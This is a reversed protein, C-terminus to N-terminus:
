TSCKKVFIKTLIIGFATSVGTSILTPLVIDFPALSGAQARIAIVTTPLLQLSTAALVFLMTKAYENKHNDMSAAARMGAPTAVSGLGLLNATINVCVNKESESDLNGFLARVPRKLIAALKQTIKAKELIEFLGLWVTYVVILTGLLSLSKEAGALFSSLLKDPSFVMLVAASSLVLFAFIVNM